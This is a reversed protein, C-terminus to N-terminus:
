RAERWFLRGCLRVALYARRRRWPDVGEEEMQRLFLADAEARTYVHPPAIGEPAGGSGYLRDHVVPPVEGLEHPAIIWWVLRPISAGSCEYGEPITITREGDLVTFTEEVRWCRRRSSYRINPRFRTM